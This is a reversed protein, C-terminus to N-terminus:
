NFDTSAAVRGLPMALFDKSHRMASCSAYSQTLQITLTNTLCVLCVLTDECYWRHWIIM